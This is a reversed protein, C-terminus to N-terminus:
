KLIYNGVFQVFIHKVHRGLRYDMWDTTSNVTPSVRTYDIANYM